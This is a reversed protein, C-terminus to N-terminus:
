YEDIIPLENLTSLSSCVFLLALVEIAHDKMGLKSDFKRQQRHMLSGESPYVLNNLGKECVDITIVEIM